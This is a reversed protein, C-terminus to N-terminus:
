GAQTVSAAYAESTAPRVGTRTAPVGTLLRELLALGQPWDGLFSDSNIHGLFGVDVDPPAVLLAGAVPSGSGCIGGVMRGYPLANACRITQAHGYGECRYSM